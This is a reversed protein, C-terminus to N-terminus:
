KRRPGVDRGGLADDAIVTTGDSLRVSTVWWGPDDASWDVETWVDAAAAALEEFDLDARGLPLETWLEVEHEPHRGGPTVYNLNVFTVIVSRADPSPRPASVRRVVDFRETFDATLPLRLLVDAGVLEVVVVQGEDWLDHFKGHSQVDVFRLEAANPNWAERMIYSVTSSM